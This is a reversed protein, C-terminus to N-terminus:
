ESFDENKRIEDLDGGHDQRPTDGPENASRYPVPGSGPDLSNRLMMMEIPNHM